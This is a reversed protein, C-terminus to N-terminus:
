FTFLTKGIDHEWLFDLVKCEYEYFTQNLYIMHSREISKRFIKMSIIEFVYSPITSDYSTIQNKLFFCFEKENTFLTKDPYQLPFDSFSKYEEKFYESKMIDWISAREIEELILMSLLLRKFEKNEEKEFEICPSCISYKQNYIIEYFTCGLAWIDAKYNYGKERWIEPPRYHQSFAEDYVRDTEDFLFSSLSFDSLKVSNKVLLINSPKIDGHIIGRSHLFGVACVIQWLISRIKSNSVSLSKNRVIKVLASRFDCSALPMVIKTTKEKVDVQYQIGNMLYSYRLFFLILIETFCRIGNLTNQILKIAYNEKDDCQIKYVDGFSGSNIKNGVICSM